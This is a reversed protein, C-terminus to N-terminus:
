DGAFVALLILFAAVAGGAGAAIGVGINKGVGTSTDLAVAAIRDIAIQTPPEPIRTAPQVVIGAADAKMLTGKLIRRGVLHVRVRSGIPLQKVYSSLLAPDIAEVRSAPVSAIRAAGASACGSFVLATSLIIAITRPM